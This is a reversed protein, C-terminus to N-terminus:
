SMGFRPPSSFRISFIRQQALRKGSRDPAGLIWENNDSGGAVTKAAAAHIERM